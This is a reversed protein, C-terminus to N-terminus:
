YQRAISARFEALGNDNRNNQREGWLRVRHMKIQNAESKIKQGTRPSRMKSREKQKKKEVM